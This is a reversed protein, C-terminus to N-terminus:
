TRLVPINVSGTMTGYPRLMARVDAPITQSGPPTTGRDQDQYVVETDGLRRSKIGPPAQTEPSASPDRCSRWPM